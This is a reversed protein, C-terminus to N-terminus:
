VDLAKLLYEISSSSENENGRLCDVLVSAAENRLLDIAPSNPSIGKSQAKELSRLLSILAEFVDFWPILKANQLTNKTLPKELLTDDLLSHWPAQVTLQCFGHDIHLIGAAEWKAATEALNRYTYKSYNEIEKLRAGDQRVLLYVLLVHRADNGLLNRARLLVASPHKLPKGPKDYLDINQKTLHISYVLDRFDDKSNLGYPFETVDDFKNTTDSGYVTELIEKSYNKAILINWLHARANTDHRKCPIRSRVISDSYANFWSLVGERLRLDTQFFELSCWLLAEPDIVEIIASRRSSHFPIGLERWQAYLIDLLRKRLTNEIFTNSSNKM